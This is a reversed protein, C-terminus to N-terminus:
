GVEAFERFDADPGAIWGVRLGQGFLDGCFLEASLGGGGGFLGDGSGVEDDRDGAGGLGDEDAAPEFGGGDDTGYAGTARISAFEVVVGHAAGDENFGAFGGESFGAVDEVGACGDM